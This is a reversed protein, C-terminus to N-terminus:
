ASRGHSAEWLVKFKTSSELLERPKGAEVVKGKDLVVVKDFDMITDLRHAISIITHNKFLTEIVKQVKAEIEGDVSTNKNAQYMRRCRNEQVYRSTAEDLLVIRGTDKRLIARALSFLQKQGHSLMDESFKVDLGGKREVAAWIDAAELAEILDPTEFASFPDLNERVTGPLVFHDQSVTVIRSRILDRPVTDLNIGDVTISGSSADLLRLFSLLLSSKGSYIATLTLM